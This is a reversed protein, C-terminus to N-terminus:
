QQALLVDSLIVVENKTVDYSAKKDATMKISEKNTIFLLEDYKKQLVGYGLKEIEAYLQNKVVHVKIGYNETFDQIKGDTQVLVYIDFWDFYSRSIPGSIFSIIFDTPIRKDCLIQTVNLSLAEIYAHFIRRLVSRSLNHEINNINKYDSVSCLCSYRRNPELIKQNFYLQPIGNAVGYYKDNDIKVSVKPYFESLPKPNVLPTKFKSLSRIYVKHKEERSWQTRLSIPIYMCEEERPYREKYWFIYEYYWADEPDIKAIEFVIGPPLQHNLLDEKRCLYVNKHRAV